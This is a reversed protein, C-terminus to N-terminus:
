STHSNVKKALLAMREVHQPIDEAKASVGYFDLIAEKVEELSSGSRAAFQACAERCGALLGEWM